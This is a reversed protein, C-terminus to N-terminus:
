KQQNDSWFYKLRHSGLWPIFRRYSSLWGTKLRSRDSYKKAYHLLGVATAYIPSEVLDVLGTIGEKPRGLRTPANFIGEALEVLGELKSSGGTLVYGSVVSDTMNAAALHDRVLELLEIYHAEIIQNLFSRKFKQAPHAAVGPVSIMSEDRAKKPECSGYKLKIDEAVKKQTRLTVAIDRTAHDGAVPVVKSYVIRGGRYVAIDSTGGGIDVLCVGLEREGETLVAMSSAIQELVTEVMELGCQKVCKEIDRVAYKSGTVLHVNAILLKGSMQLPETIGSQGDIVYDSPMVNLFLNNDPIDIARAADIAREKDNETVELGRISAKGSSNCSEIHGGSVGVHLQDIRIRSGAVTEAEEVAHRIAKATEEINNVVGKKLGYCPATGVAHITIQEGNIDGVVVAVKSTGIDLATCLRSEM